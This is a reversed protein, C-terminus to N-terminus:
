CAPTGRSVDPRAGTVIIEARRNKARGAETVNSALYCCLPSAKLTMRTEDIALFRLYDRTTEAREWALEENVFSGGPILRQDDTYGTIMILYSEPLAAVWQRLYDRGADSLQSSSNEFYVIGKSLPEDERVQRTKKDRSGLHCDEKRQATDSPPSPTPVSPFQFQKNPFLFMRLRQDPAQAGLPVDIVRLKKKEDKSSRDKKEAEPKFVYMPLSDPLRNSLFDKKESPGLDDTPISGRSACAGLGVLALLIILPRLM